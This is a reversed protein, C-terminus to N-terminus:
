SCDWGMWLIPGVTVLVFLILGLAYELTSGQSLMIDVM